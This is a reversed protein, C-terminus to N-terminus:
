VLACQPDFFHRHHREKHDHRGWDRLTEPNRGAHNTFARNGRM